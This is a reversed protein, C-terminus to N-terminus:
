GAQPGVAAAQRELVLRELDQSRRLDAASDEDIRASPNRRVVDRWEPSTEIFVADVCRLAAMLIARAERNLLENDRPRIVVLLKRGAATLGAVREAAEATLPDFFGAVVTWAERSLTERLDELNRIKERTDM